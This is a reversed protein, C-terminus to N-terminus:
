KGEWGPVIHRVDNSLAKYRRQDVVLLKVTPHYKAMRKIATRSRPTMWGKVEHYEISGDPRTVRFDPLYSLTGRKIGEFWFTEPEHEWKAISGRERLVELWRAYNAEWRSRFFVRAGAIERWGAGYQGGEKHGTHTGNKARAAHAKLSRRHWFDDTARERFAALMEPTRRIKGTAWSRKIVLAQAPRKKGVKSAAARRQWEKFFPSTRDQKLGLDCAKQAVAKPSRGIAEVCWMKGHTPYFETLKELEEASWKDRQTMRPKAIPEIDYRV